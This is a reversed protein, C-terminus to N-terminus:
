RSGGVADDAGGQARELYKVIAPYLTKSAARGHKPDFVNVYVWNRPLQKPPRSSANRMGFSSFTVPIPESQLMGGPAYMHGDIMFATSINDDRHLLTYTIPAIRSPMFFVMDTHLNVWHWMLAALESSMYGAVFARESVRENKKGEQSMVTCLGLDAMRHFFHRSPGSEAKYWPCGDLADDIQRKWLEPSFVKGPAM